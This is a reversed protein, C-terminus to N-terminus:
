PKRSLILNVRTHGLHGTRIQAVKGPHWALDTGRCTKSSHILKRGSIKLLSEWLWVEGTDGDLSGIEYFSTPPKVDVDVDM